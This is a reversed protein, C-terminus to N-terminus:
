HVGRVQVQGQDSKGQQKLDILFLIKNCHSLAPPLSQSPPFQPYSELYMKVSSSISIYKAPFFLLPEALVPVPNRCPPTPQPLPCCHSIVLSFAYGSVLPRPYRLNCLSSRCACRLNRPLINLSHLYNIQSPTYGEKRQREM